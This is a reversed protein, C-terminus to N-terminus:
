LVHTNLWNEIDGRVQEPIEWPFLHATQPYCYFQANPLHQATAQSSAATIHRDRDGALVLSPSQIRNLDGQRNYRARLAQTLAQTAYRSTQLYASLAERALYKYATPTHQQILYRFLSRKGFTNINWQWGPVLGNIIGALGTYFYDVWTIPPHNGLPYAATAVLILGTVRQPFKLALELALIGGLSWGLILCQQINLQDLLNELDVLHDQMQFPQSTRSQGYGRLDPAVTQFRLSLFDTFVSMCQSSGPHGHLCLIPFGEGKIQTNLPLPEM